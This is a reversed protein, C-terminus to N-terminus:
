ECWKVVRWAQTSRGSITCRRKGIYELEGSKVRDAIWNDIKWETMEIGLNLFDKEIMARTKEGAALGEAQYLERWLAEFENTDLDSITAGM